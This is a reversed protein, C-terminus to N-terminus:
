LIEQQNNERGKVSFTKGNEILVAATPTGNAEAPQSVDIALLKKDFFHKFCPVVCHGVVMKEVEFFKLAADIIAEVNKPVSNKNILGRYWLPGEPGFLMAEERDLIEFSKKGLHKRVIENINEISFNFGLVAPSIGAHVFLYNGIKEITNKTRLWNGLISSTSFLLAYLEKLIPDSIYKAHVYRYDGNFNMLEHNGLMIHVKGGCEEAQFDLKYLLWLCALVNNSRDILDGLVLLHNTGYSWDFNEDIVGNNSLISQLAFFNGEIDSIVLLKDPQKYRCADAEFQSLHQLSFSFRQTDSGQADIYCNFHHTGTDTFPLVQKELEFSTADQSKHVYVVDIVNQRLFIYPGDPM